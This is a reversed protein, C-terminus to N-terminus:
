TAKNWLAEGGVPYVLEFRQSIAYQLFLISCSTCTSGGNRCDRLYHSARVCPVSPGKRWTDEKVILSPHSLSSGSVAATLSLSAQMCFLSFYLIHRPNIINNQITPSPFSPCLFLSLSPPLSLSHHISSAALTSCSHEM